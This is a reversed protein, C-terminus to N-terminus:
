AAHHLFAPESRATQVQHGPGEDPNEDRRSGTASGSTNTREIAAASTRQSITERVPVIACFSRGAILVLKRSSHDSM